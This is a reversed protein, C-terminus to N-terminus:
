GAPWSPKQLSPSQLPDEYGSILYSHLTQILDQSCINKVTHILFMNAKINTSCFVSGTILLGNPVNNKNM